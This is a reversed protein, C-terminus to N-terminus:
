TVEAAALVLLMLALALPASVVGQQVPVLLVLLVGVALWQMLSQTLAQTIAQQLALRHELGALTGLRGQWDHLLRPRLGYALVDPLGQLTQVLQSRMQDRIDMRAQLPAAARRSLTILLATILAFLTLMVLAALP